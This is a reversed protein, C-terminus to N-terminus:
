VLLETLKANRVNEDNRAMFLPRKKFWFSPLRALRWLARSFDLKAAPRLTPRGSAKGARKGLFPAERSFPGVVPKM